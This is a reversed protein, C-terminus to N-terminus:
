SVWESTNHEGFALSGFLSCSFGFVYPRVVACNENMNNYHQVNYTWQKNCKYAIIEFFSPFLHVYVYSVFLCDDFVFLIRFILDVFRSFFSPCIKILDCHASFRHHAICQINYSSLPYHCVFHWFYVHVISFAVCLFIPLLFAFSHNKTAQLRTCQVNCVTWMKVHLVDSAQYKTPIIAEIINNQPQKEM